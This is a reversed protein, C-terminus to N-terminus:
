EVKLKKRTDCSFADGAASVQLVRVAYEGPEVARFLAQADYGSNILAPVKTVVVVDPRKTLRVAKLYYSQKGSLEIVVVPPVTGTVGDAAWGILRKATRRDVSTIPGTNVGEVTDLSCPSLPAPSAFSTPKNPRFEEELLAPPAGLPVVGSAAAVASAVHAARARQAQKALEESASQSRTCAITSVIIATLALVGARGRAACTSPCVGVGGQDEEEHRV